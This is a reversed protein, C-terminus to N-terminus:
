NPRSNGKSRLAGIGVSLGVGNQRGAAKLVLKAETDTQRAESKHGLKRLCVAYNGLTVGYSPHDLGVTQRCLAVARQFVEAAEKTRGLQVLSSALNNLPEIV